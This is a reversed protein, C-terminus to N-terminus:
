LLIQPPLKLDLGFTQTHNLMYAAASWLFYLPLLELTCFYLIIHFVTAEDRSFVHFSKFFLLLKALALIAAVALLTHRLSLDFYVVLLAIPFLCLGTSLISLLYLDHWRGVTERTFFVTNVFRYLGVKLLYYTFCLLTAALLLAYPSVGKTVGPPLIEQLIDFALVGMVFCTQFILFPVGRLETEVQPTFMNESEQARFFNTLKGHLYNRSRAIVWIIFFFSLVLASTVFDDNRLRYPLPEGEVGQRNATHWALLSDPLAYTTGDTSDADPRILLQPTNLSDTQLSDTLVTDPM